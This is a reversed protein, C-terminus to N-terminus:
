PGRLCPELLTHLRQADTDAYELARASTAMSAASDGSWFEAWETISLVQYLGRHDNQHDLTEGALRLDALARSFRSERAGLVGAVVLAWARGAELAPSLQGVWLRLQESPRRELEAEGGRAIM